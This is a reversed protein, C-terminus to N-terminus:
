PCRLAGAVHWLWGSNPSILASARWPSRCVLVCRGSCCAATLVSDSCSDGRWRLSRCRGPWVGAADSCCAAPYLTHPAPVAAGRLRRLTGAGRGCLAGGLPGTARGQRAPHARRRRRRVLRSAAVSLVPGCLLASSRRTVRQTVCRGGGCRQGEQRVWMCLGRLQVHAVVGASWRLRVWVVVCPCTLCRAPGHM